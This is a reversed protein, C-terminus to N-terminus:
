ARQSYDRVSRFVQISPVLGSGAALRWDTLSLWLLPASVPVKILSSTVHNEGEAVGNTDSDHSLNDTM